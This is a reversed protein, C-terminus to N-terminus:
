LGVTVRTVGVTGCFQRLVSGATWDSPLPVVSSRVVRHSAVADASANSHKYEDACAASAALRLAVLAIVVASVSPPSGQCGM